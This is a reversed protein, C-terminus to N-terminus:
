GPPTHLRIEPNHPFERPDLHHNPNGNRREQAAALHVGASLIYDLSFRQDYNWVISRDCGQAPSLLVNAFIVAKHSTLFTSLATCNGRRSFAAM